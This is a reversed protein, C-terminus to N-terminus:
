YVGEKVLNNIKENINYTMQEIIEDLKDRSSDYNPRSNFGFRNNIDIICAINDSIQNSQSLSGAKAVDVDNNFIRANQLSINIFKDDDQTFTYRINIDHLGDLQKKLLNDSLIKTPESYDDLLLDTVIGFYEYSNDTLLDFFCFIEDIVDKIYKQCKMWNNEYGNDFVFQISSAIPSISITTREELSTLVIRPIEDPAEEPIPLITAENFNKKFIADNNIYLKKLEKIKKYKVSIVTSKIKM